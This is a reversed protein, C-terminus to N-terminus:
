RINYYSGAILERMMDIDGNRSADFFQLVTDDPGNQAAHVLSICFLFTAILSLIYKNM